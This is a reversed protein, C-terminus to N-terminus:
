FLAKEIVAKLAPKKAIFKKYSKIFPKSLVLKRKSM